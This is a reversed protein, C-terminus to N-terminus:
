VSQVSLDNCHNAAWWLSCPVVGDAPSRFRVRGEEEQVPCLLLRRKVWRHTVDSAMRLRTPRTVHHRRHRGHRYHLSPPRVCSMTLGADRRFSHQHAAGSERIDRYNCLQTAQFQRVAPCSVRSILSLPLLCPLARLCPSGTLSIHLSQLSRPLSRLRACHM